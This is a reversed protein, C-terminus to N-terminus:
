ADVLYGRQFQYIKSYLVRHAQEKIHDLSGKLSIVELFNLVNQLDIENTSLTSPNHFAWLSAVIDPVSHNDMLLIMLNNMFDANRM